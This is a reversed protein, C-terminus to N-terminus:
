TRARNRNFLGALGILGLLGLWGWGDNDGTNTTNAATARPGTGTRRVSDNNFLNFDNMTRNDDTQMRTTGNIGNVDMIGDRDTGAGRRDTGEALVPSAATLFLVAAVLVQILKKV